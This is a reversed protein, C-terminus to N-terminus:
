QVFKGFTSTFNFSIDVFRVMAQFGMTDVLQFQQPPPSPSMAGFKLCFIKEREGVFLVKKQQISASSLHLWQKALNRPIVPILTSQSRTKVGIM